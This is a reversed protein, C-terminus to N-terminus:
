RAKMGGEEGTEGKRREGSGTSEMSEVGEWGVEEDIWVLQGVVVVEPGGDVELCGDEVDVLMWSVNEVVDSFTCSAEVRIPGDAKAEGDMRTVPRRRGKVWM